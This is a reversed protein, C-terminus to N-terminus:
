RKVMRVVEGAARLIYLGNPLHSVDITATTASLSFVSVLRGVMDYIMVEGAEPMVINVMGIAPNPYVAFRRVTAEPGVGVDHGQSYPMYAFPRGSDTTDHIWQRRVERSAARLVEVSSFADFSGFGITYALDFQNPTDTTPAFNFPGSSGVGRRDGPANGMVKESWKGSYYNPDVGNTGWDWPDSDDPFMFSCQQATTGSTYGDGGFMAPSGNRWRSNMYYYYDAANTPEGTVTNTNSNYYMFNTMGIRENDVIGDGFGCGNIAQNGNVDNSVFHWSHYDISYFLDADSNVAVTDLSGDARRYQELLSRLQQSGMQNIYDIDVKGNDLGDAQQWPGGLIICGQAPPVGSFSNAGPGDVEDGNYAYFMGCRVDCGVYDDFAYGLDFDVWSGFYTDLWTQSSRNYVDYHVFVTNWMASDNPENFAYAMAHVEIGLPMGNSEAHVTRSDNFICYVAEDGRIIPYDGALARYRGDGDADYFPALWAAFGDVSDGNGPWTMIDDVPEYGADGCHAIHYDIMERTVHWVRNYRLMTAIDTTADTVRLPGPYYDFGNSGYRMAAMRDYNGVWLGTAFVSIGYTSGDATEQSVRYGATQGNYSLTGYQFFPTSIRNVALSNYHIADGYAVITDAHAPMVYEQVEDLVGNSWGLFQCWGVRESLLLATDGAEYNGNSFWVNGNYLVSDVKLASANSARVTLRHACPTSLWQFRRWDGSRWEALHGCPVMVVPRTFDMTGNGGGYTDAFVTAAGGELMPPTTCAFTLSDLSACGFFAQSSLKALSAPATLSTLGTCRRFAGGCVTTIGDPLTYAGAYSEPMYLFLTNNYVPSTLGTCGSFVDTGASTVSVPLVVGTIETMNAFARDTIHTVTNPINAFTLGPVAGILTDLDFNTYVLSDEIYGNMYRAGWPAGPLNGHYTIMLVNQFAYTGIATVGSPIELEMIGSCGSFARLGIEELEYPLSVSVLATCDRFARPGIAKVAYTTGNYTVIDPVTLFGSPRTHTGWPNNNSAEPGTVEVTSGVINYYLTDGNPSVSWFDYALAAQPVALAALLALSIIIKRKM